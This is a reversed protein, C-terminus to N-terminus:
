LPSSTKPSQRPLVLALAGGALAFAAFFSFAYSLGMEDAIGGFGLAALGGVGISFGLMLGGVTGVNNPAAESAMAVIVSWSGYLIAGSAALLLVSLLGNTMLFGYFLGGGVWLSFIIVPRRGILDSIHGGAIQGIVGAGFWISAVATALFLSEGRAVLYLPLFTAAVQITTSRLASITALLGLLRTNSPQHQQQIMSSTRKVDHVKFLLLSTVLGIPLLILTGNLGMTSILGGAVLPGLFFGANGGSLFIGLSSGKSTMSSSAVTSFAPPHFAATGLGATGVLLLLIAYNPSIGTLGMGFCNLLLGGGILWTKQKRDFWRGLFPQLMSSTLSFVMAVGGALLYSLNFAMTFIPLLGAILNSAMDNVTHGVTLLLSAHKL